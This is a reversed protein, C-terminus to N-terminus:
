PAAHFYISMVLRISEEVACLEASVNNREPVQRVCARTLEYRHQIAYSTSSYSFFVLENNSTSRKKLKNRFSRKRSFSKEQLSFILSSRQVSLM